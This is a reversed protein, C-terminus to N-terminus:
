STVIPMHFTPNAESTAKISHALASGADARDPTLIPVNFQVIWPPTPSM